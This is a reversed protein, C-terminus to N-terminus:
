RCGAAYATLFCLFDNANISANVDCNAYPDKAAFKNIFCMFDNATLRPSGTSLDCNAYCQPEKCGVWQAFGYVVGGAVSNYSNSAQSQVWLSLGRQDRVVGMSKVLTRIGGGVAEFGQGSYRVINETVVGGFNQFEGGIYIAPGRGDDFVQLDMIYRASPFAPGGVFTWTTGDWKFLGQREAGIGDITPVSNTFIAPGTGDDYVVADPVGNGKQVLHPWPATWTSGDFRAFGRAPVGNVSTFNSFIYLADGAQDTYGIAIQTSFGNNAGIVQWGGNTYRKVGVFTQDGVVFRSGWLNMNWVGYGGQEPWFAPKLYWKMGDFTYLRQSALPSMIRWSLREGEGFDLSHLYGENMGSPLGSLPFQQWGQGTWRHPPIAGPPIDYVGATIILEASSDPAVGVASVHLNSGPVSRVDIGAWYGHCTQAAASASALLMLAISLPAQKM